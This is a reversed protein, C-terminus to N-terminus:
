PLLPMPGGDPMDDCDPDNDSDDMKPTWTSTLSATLSVLQDNGGSVMDLENHDLERALIRGIARVKTKEDNSMEIEMEM